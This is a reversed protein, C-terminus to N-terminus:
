IAIGFDKYYFDRFCLTSAILLIFSKVIGRGLPSWVCKVMIQVGAKWFLKMFSMQKNSFLNEVSHLIISMRSTYLYSWHYMGVTTTLTHKQFTYFRLDLCPENIATSERLLFGNTNLIHVCDPLHSIRSVETLEIHVRHFSFAEATPPAPYGVVLAYRDLYACYYKFCWKM